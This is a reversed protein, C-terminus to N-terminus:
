DEEKKLLDKNFNIVKDRGTNKAEYLALDAYKICKMIETSDDPFIATGISITKQITSNGAPIKKDGFALRIKEALSFISDINCGYLLIIFEEGGYRICIDSERTNEILTQALIRIATDGVDHGFTDNVMKFHDIDLMLVGFKVESRNAQSIITPVTDELYKRNYLGTLADSNATQELINMLKKSVIVTKTADIYDEIYPISDRVRKAEEKTDAYISVIFDLNNSISHPICIYEKKTTCEACVEHFQQSDIVVNTRDARCGNEVASCYVGVESYVLSVKHNVTDAEFFNFDKINLNRKLVFALRKYVEELKEDHEITKRFKYVDSLRTVTTKVNILHDVSVQTNSSLFISIKEDISDLTNKIKDLLANVWRAVEKAEKGKVNEIRYTYDGEQAKSMVKKISDFINLFPSIIFNVLLIIGIMLVLIIIMTNFITSFGKQKATTLSMQITVSGLTDGVKANTHCSLCDIRSSAKVKYPITIRYSSKGLISEKIVKKTKGTELVEKDVEDRPAEHLLGNGFQDIVLQGRSLWIKDINKIDELQEIFLKRDQIVGSVMQSTLAHEIVEALSVTKNEVTKLGYDRFNYIINAALLTFIVFTIAMLLLIVKNKTNM